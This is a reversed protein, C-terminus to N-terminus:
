RYIERRHGIKVVLILLVKDLVQYIVRYDGIRIRYHDDEGQLKEVGRPRPNGMLADIRVKLRAQIDRPLKRFQRDAAPAFEIRYAM